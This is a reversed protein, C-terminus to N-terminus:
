RCRPSEKAMQIMEEIGALMRDLLPPIQGGHGHFALAIHFGSKLIFFGSKM